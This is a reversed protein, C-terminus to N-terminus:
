MGSSSPLHSSPLSRSLCAASVVWLCIRRGAGCAALTASPLMSVMGLIPRKSIDRLTRADHFIPMAQSSCLEGCARGFSCRLGYWSALGIPAVPEPSVRPPDIVRFV